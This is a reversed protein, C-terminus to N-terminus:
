RALEQKTGKAMMERPVRPEALETCLAPHGKETGVGGSCRNRHMLIARPTEEGGGGVALPYQTEWVQSGGM